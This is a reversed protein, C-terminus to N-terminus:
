YMERNSQSHRREQERVYKKLQNVEEELTKIRRTYENKGGRGGLFSIESEGSVSVSDLQDNRRRYSRESQQENMTRSISSFDSKVDDFDNQQYNLFDDVLELEEDLRQPVPRRIQVKALPRVPKPVPQQRERSQNSPTSPTVSPIASPTTSLTSSPVPPQQPTSSLPQPPTLSPLPEQPKRIFESLLKCNNKTVPLKWTFTEVDFEVPKDFAISRMERCQDITKMQITFTTSNREVTVGNPFEQKTSM